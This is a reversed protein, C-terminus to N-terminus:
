SRRGRFIYARALVLLIISGQIVDVLAFPVGAGREMANGGVVLAAFLFASVVMGLPHLDGLLAVVVALSGMGVAIADILRYHIGFIEGWGAIGAVGGTILAVLIVTRNVNLGVHTAVRRSAGVIETRFGLTSRWFLLAVVVLVLAVLFAINLRSGALFRPLQFAEAILSSQPFNFGEPDKLPGNVIYALLYVAIFNLMSTTIVENANFRAKLVGAIGSWLAGGVVSALLSLPLVVVAPWSKLLLAVSFSAIAGLILQGEAGINWFGCRFSVSVSIALILFPTMKVFTEALRAPSGFAGQLLATYAEIPNRGSALLLLAGFLLALGVALAAPWIRAALGRWDITKTPKPIATM